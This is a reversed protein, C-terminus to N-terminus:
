DPLLIVVVVAVVGIAGCIIGVIPQWRNAATEPRVRRLAIAGLIIAALGAPLGLVFCFVLPISAIGLILSLLGLTDSQQGGGPRLQGGGEPGEGTPRAGMPEEGM